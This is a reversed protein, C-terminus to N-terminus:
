LLDDLETSMRSLRDYLESAKAKQSKNKPIFLKNQEIRLKQSHHNM